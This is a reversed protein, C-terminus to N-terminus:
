NICDLIAIHKLVPHIIFYTNGSSEDQKKFQSKKLYDNKLVDILTESRIYADYVDDVFKHTPKPFIRQHIIDGTDLNKNMIYATVGCNNQNIISYYFCTSGRYDPVFGPHFHVFKPGCTLIEDKLIGGGTFICFDVNIGKIYEILRSDNIDNFDFEKYKIKNENLTEVVSQSIDFGQNKSQLVCANTFDKMPNKDNMLIIQDIQIKNQLLKQIYSKSRSDTTLIIGIRM